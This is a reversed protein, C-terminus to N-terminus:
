WNIVLLKMFLNVGSERRCALYLAVILLQNSLKARPSSFLSTVALKAKDFCSLILRGAGGFSM